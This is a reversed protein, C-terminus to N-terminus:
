WGGYDSMSMDDNEGCEKCQDWLIMTGDEQWDGANLFSCYGNLQYRRFPNRILYPCLDLLKRYPRGDAEYRKETKSYCYLGPPIVSTDTPNVSLRAIIYRVAQRIRTIM